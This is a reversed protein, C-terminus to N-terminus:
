TLPVLVYCTSERGIRKRYDRNKEQGVYGRGMKKREIALCDKINIKKAM